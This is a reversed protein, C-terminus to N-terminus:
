QVSARTRSGEPASSPVYIYRRRKRGILSLLLGGGLAAALFVGPKNEFHQRWDTASKVRQELESLNASLEERTSRIHSKIQGSTEDM